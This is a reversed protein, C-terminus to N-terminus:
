RGTSPIARACRERRHCATRYGTADLVDWCTIAARHLLTLARPHGPVGEWLRYDRQGGCSVELGSHYLASCLRSVPRKDTWHWPTSPQTANREPAVCRGLVASAVAGAARTLWFLPLCM